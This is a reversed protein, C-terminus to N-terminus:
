DTSDDQFQVPISTSQKISTGTQKVTDSVTNAADTIEAQTDSLTQKVQSVSTIASTVVEEKISDFEDRVAVVDKIFDDLGFDQLFGM